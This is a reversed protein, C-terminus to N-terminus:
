SRSPGDHCLAQALKDYPLDLYGRVNLRQLEQDMADVANRLTRHYESGASLDRSGIHIGGLNQLKLLHASNDLTWYCSAVLSYLKRIGAFFALQNALESSYPVGAQESIDRAADYVTRAYGIVQDRIPAPLDETTAALSAISM